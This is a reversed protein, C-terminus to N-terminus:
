QVPQGALIYTVAIGLAVLAFSVFFGILIQRLTKMEDRLGKIDDDRLDRLEEHMERRLGEVDSALRKVRDAVVDPRGDKLSQVERELVSVRWALNNRPSTETMPGPKDLTPM